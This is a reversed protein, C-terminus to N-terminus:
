EPVDVRGDSQAGVRKHEEDARAVYVIVSNAGTTLQPHRWQRLMTMNGRGGREAPTVRRSPVRAEEPRDRRGAGFFTLCKKSVSWSSM